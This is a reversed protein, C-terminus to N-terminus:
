PARPRNESRARERLQCNQSVLWGAGAVTLHSDPPAVYVRGALLPAGHEAVEVPLESHRGLILALLSRATAPVHLVVCVAAPLDAPLHRVLRVLADVGGASAGIGVVRRPPGEPANASM